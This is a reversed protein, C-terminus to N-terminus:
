VESTRGATATSDRYAQQRGLVHFAAEALHRAVAGVAKSHGKRARLRGYLQSVHREPFGPRTSRPLRAFPFRRSRRHPIQKEAEAAELIGAFGRLKKTRALTSNLSFWKWGAEAEEQRKKRKRPYSAMKKQRLSWQLCKQLPESNNREGENTQGSQCDVEGDAPPGENPRL